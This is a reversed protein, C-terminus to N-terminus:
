MTTDCIAGWVSGGKWVRQVVACGDGDCCTLSWISLCLSFMNGWVVLLVSRPSRPSRTRRGSRHLRQIYGLESRSFEVVCVQLQSRMLRVPLKVDAGNSCMPQLLSGNPSRLGALQRLAPIKEKASHSKVLQRSLSSVPSCNSPVVVVVIDVFNKEGRNSM